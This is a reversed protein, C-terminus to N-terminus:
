DGGGEARSLLALLRGAEPAFDAGTEVITQLERRARRADGQELYAGALYWRHIPSSSLAVASELARAARGPQGAQLRSVGLYFLAEANPAKAEPTGEIRAAAEAFRRADYLKMAELFRPSPPLGRLDSAIYPPPAATWLGRLKAHRTGAQDLEIATVLALAIVSAAVWAPGLRFPSRLHDRISRVLARRSGPALPETANTPERTPDASELSPEDPFIEQVNARAMTSLRDRFRLDEFCDDCALFHREYPEVESPSLRGSLYEDAIQRARITKCDMSGVRDSM